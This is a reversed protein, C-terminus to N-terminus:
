IKLGSKVGNKMLTSTKAGSPVSHEQKLGQLKVCRRKGNRWGSSRGMRERLRRGASTCSEIM